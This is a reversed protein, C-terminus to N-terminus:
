AQRPIAGHYKRVLGDFFDKGKAAVVDAPIIFEGNSVKVPGGTSQNVAHISDSTGTGPGHIMGGGAHAEPQGGMPNAGQDQVNGQPGQSGLAGEAAKAATLIILVLGQDYQQPLDNPGCLGRSIAFQRLQPWLQPNQLCAQALQVAINALHPDIQGQAIAQQIHQQIQQKVGPNQRLMDTIQQDAMQPNIPQGPQGQQPAGLPANPPVPSGVQGGDAYAPTNPNMRGGRGATTPAANSFTNGGFAHSLPTEAAVGGTNLGALPNGGQGHVGSMAIYNPNAVSSAVGPITEGTFPDTSSAAFTDLTPPVYAAQAGQQGVSNLTFHQGNAVTGFMPTVNPNDATPMANQAASPATPLTATNLGIQGGDAYGAAEMAKRTNDTQTTNARINNAGQQVNVTAPGPATPAPRAPPQAPPTAPKQSSSDFPWAM